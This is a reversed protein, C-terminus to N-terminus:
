VLMPMVSITKEDSECLRRGGGRESCSLGVDRGRGVMACPMGGEPRGRADECAPRRAGQRGAATCSHLPERREGGMRSGLGEEWKERGNQEGCTGHRGAQRSCVQGGGMHSLGACCAKLSLNFNGRGDQNLAGLQEELEFIGIQVTMLPKERKTSGTLRASCSRGMGGRTPQAACGHGEFSVDHM